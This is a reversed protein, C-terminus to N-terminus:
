LGEMAKLQKALEAVQERVYAEDRYVDGRFLAAFEPNFVGRRMKPVLDGGHSCDFGFWWVDDPEGKGPIHCIGTAPDEGHGCAAAYTLGGHVEVENIVQEIPTNPEPDESFDYHDYNKGHAPHDKPVGVYGCLAGTVWGNRVILCPYGTAEDRWQAKDVEANWPGEGWDAKDIVGRYEIAEM